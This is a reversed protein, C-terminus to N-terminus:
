VDIPGYLGKLAIKIIREDDSIWESGALPPYINPVGLGTAQHCTACHADRLFVEKGIGYVRRDEGSLKRTPGYSQQAENKPPDPCKFKGDLYDRANANNALDLKGSGRLADVDDKLTYELIQKTVPGMWRDLPLKLAELVVRAGDANDLWSAAVIAELRVRPNEDRAAQMFLEAANPVKNFDFRLVSAAAARAQPTKAALVQKILDVDPQNQAWTAWM